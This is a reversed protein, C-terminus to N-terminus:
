PQAPPLPGFSVPAQAALFAMVAWAAVNQPLSAKDVKDLTDNDTHHWDFYDSGDQFLTLSAFRTRRQIFAADPGSGARNDGAAIGLPALLEAIQAVVPLAPARVQSGFRWVKGAGFDSEAVLQHPQNKYKESYALAGSFGNEENAFLVVRISRRPRVAGDLIKKAAAVVIGVGAGDDVAGHGVDWSDLHAGIMVVEQGADTGVVEAIVNHSLADLDGEAAVALHMKVPQGHGVLRAILDADPGSVALAPIPAVGPDYRMAGTHALRNSGTGISRIAVAVAGRKGAEVAGQSRAAVARGYGSGDRSRDTKQDIFVIRGRARDSADARLQALDSYYAVEAHLSAGPTAVSNGLATIVLPHPFPATIHAHAQGRRWAKLSVPEARVNAFGLAKLRALAWAVAKADGESGAARAGVETVLSSVLEYALEDKLGQERLAVAHQLDPDTLVVASGVSQAPSSGCLLSWLAVALITRRGPAQFRQLAM